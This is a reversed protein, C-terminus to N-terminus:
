ATASAQYPASSWAGRAGVGALLDRHFRFDCSGVVQTVALQTLDLHAALLTQEQGAVTLQAGEPRAAGVVVPRQGFTQQVVSAQHTGPMLAGEVSARTVQEFRWWERSQGAEVHSDLRAVDVDLTGVVRGALAGHGHGAARGAVLAREDHHAAAGGAGGGDFPQALVAEAPADDQDHALAPTRVVAGVQALVVQGARRGGVPQRQAGRAEVFLVGDLQELGLHRAEVCDARRRSNAPAGAMVGSATSTQVPPVGRRSPTGPASRGPTNVRREQLSQSAMMAAAWAAARRRRSSRRSSVSARLRALAARASARRVRHDHAGAEDGHLRGGAQTLAAELHGDHCGVRRRERGLETGLHAGKQLGAVLLM